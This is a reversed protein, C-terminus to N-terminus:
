KVETLQDNKSLKVPASRGPEASGDDCDAIQCYYKRAGKKYTRYIVVVIRFLNLIAIDRLGQAGSLM